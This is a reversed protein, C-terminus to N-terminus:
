QKPKFTQLSPKTQDLRSEGVRNGTATKLKFACRIFGGAWLLYCM